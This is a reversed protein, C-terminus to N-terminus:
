IVDAWWLVLKIPSLIDKVCLEKNLCCNESETPQTSFFGCIKLIWLWVNIRLACSFIRTHATELVNEILHFTVFCVKIRQALRGQCISFRYFQFNKLTKLMISKLHCFLCKALHSVPVKFIVWRKVVSFRQHRQVTNLLVKLALSASCTDWGTSSYGSFYSFSIYM